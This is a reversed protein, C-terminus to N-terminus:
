FAFIISFVKEEEEVEEINITPKNLIQIDVNPTEREQGKKDTDFIHTGIINIWYLQIGSYTDIEANIDNFKM